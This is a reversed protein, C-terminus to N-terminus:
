FLKADGSRSRKADDLHHQFLLAKAEKNRLTEIKKRVAEDGKHAYSERIEALKKRWSALTAGKRRRFQPIDELVLGFVQQLPKMIQNTIYHEYDIALDNDQVFRPTDIKDGQLAGKTRNVFFVFAVRDGPKPKNGPDRRGIREALVNHSIQKPNKYGSRLSKTIVLKAIPTEGRVIRSLAGDMFQVAAPVSHRSMLIDIVGGYIDKVIPANDRRKLVIGMSKRKGKDPDTEYLMGVYRKKSLLLFPWFTKEYELDHPHRLHKTALAGAEQALPITLALAERGVIKSGGMDRMNFKFFVSDTDGYVYEANVRLERGGVKVVSDSYAHEISRQAWTLLKRGVSTTCAACDIEYFTSTKAGTQGYLSNATVKISLQRKDLVNKMFPDSVTKALSRTQKRAALLEVLISPMVGVGTERMLKGADDFHQKKQVFTCVRTGVKVKENASAPSASKKHWEYCDYEIDLTRQDPEPIGLVEDRILDGSLDYDRVRVKTDMSINDSIIASPYLSSFDVCAVPDELYLGCKPELVIAGEYAEGGPCKAGLVNKNRRARERRFRDEKTNKKALTPMFYGKANCKKCIYSTLKIGQGRFVLFEMPVSCLAAMEIYGTLVDIKRMLHHVLNCDQVCYKAVKRRGEPGEDTLSFIEKPSVDDKALGWRWRRSPDLCEEEAILVERSAHDIEIVEFKAGEKYPEVSHAHEEISIYSGIELGVLNSTELITGRGPEMRSAVISDGIFHGAVYDLKYQSLQYDRRLYNYLDIQVRGEIEPYALQHEGSAIVLVSDKLGLTKKRFDYSLCVHGRRRSLKLFQEECGNARARSYMFSYDFGFINYGVIIDPDEDRILRAWAQLLSGEDKLCEITCGEVPNCSGLTQCYNKTAHMEGAGYTAFTSGIFTVKDGQQRPLCDDFVACLSVIKSERTAKSNNLVDIPTGAIRKVARRSVWAPGTHEDGWDPIIPNDQDEARKSKTRQAPLAIIRDIARGLHENSPESALDAKPIDPFRGDHKFAATIMERLENEQEEEACHGWADLIAEALRKYTKVPMPFEGSSSSAEIDFSCIKYPVPTDGGAGEIPRIRKYHCEVEIDCTSGGNSAGNCVETDPELDVQIWGTPNINRAHFFRLLPPVTGEYLVLRAGRFRYEYRGEADNHEIWEKKATQFDRISEFELRMFLADKASPGKYGYLDKGVLPTFTFTLSSDGPDSSKDLVGNLDTLFDRADGDAGEADDEESGIHVHERWEDPISTIFFPRFGTATVQSTRGDADKGYM